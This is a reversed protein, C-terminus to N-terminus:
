IQAWRQPWQAKKDFCSLSDFHLDTHYFFFFFFFNAVGGQEEATGAKVGWGGSRGEM